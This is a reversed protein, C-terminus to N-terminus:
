SDTFIYGLGIRTHILKTEFDRDIKKRLINVYVEVINTGTDYSIDWVKESIDARSVVRGTNRMFYELLAFEKATLEIVKGGRIAVKRMLDLELDAVRLSEPQHSATRSRKLLSKIRALLEPFDFPKVLYDDAGADFGAVKDLTTSLATLMLVPIEPRAAKVSRCVEMGSKGPLVLDLVILDIAEELAAKEGTIGDYAVSTEYDKEELGERIFSAVRPEDEIILIKM